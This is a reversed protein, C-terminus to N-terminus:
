QLAVRIYNNNVRAANTSLQPLWDMLNDPLRISVVGRVLRRLLAERGDAGGRWLAAVIAIGGGDGEGGVNLILCAIAKVHHLHHERAAVCLNPHVKPGSDARLPLRDNIHEGANPIKRNRQRHVAPDFVEVRQLLVWVRGLEKLHVGELVAHRVANRDIAAIVAGDAARREVPLAIPDQHPVNWAALLKDWLSNLEEAASGALHLHFHLNGGWGGGWSGGRWAGGASSLAAVASTLAAVLAGGGASGGGARRGVFLRCSLDGRRSEDLLCLGDCTGNADNVVMEQRPLVISLRDRHGVHGKAEGSLLAVAGVPVVRQQALAHVIANRM